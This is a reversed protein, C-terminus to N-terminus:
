DFEIAVELRNEEAYKIALDPGNAFLTMEVELISKADTYKVIANLLRIYDDYGSYVNKRGDWIRKMDKKVIAMTEPLDSNQTAPMVFRYISGLNSLVVNLAVSTRADYIAHSKADAFALIKSWSSIRRDKMQRVFKAIKEEDYDDFEDVWNPISEFGKKIGGWEVVIWHALLKAKEDYVHRTSPRQNARCALYPSLIERMKENATASDSISYLEKIDSDSIIGKLLAKKPLKWTMDKRKGVAKWISKVLTPNGDWLVRRKSHKIKAM